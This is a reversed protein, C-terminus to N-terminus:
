TDPLISYYIQNLKRNLHELERVYRFTNPENLSQVYTKLKNFLDMTLENPTSLMARYVVKDTLLPISLSEIFQALTDKDVDNQHYNALANVITETYELMSIRSKGFIVEKMANTNPGEETPLLIDIFLAPTIETYQFYMLIDQLQDYEMPVNTTLIFYKLRSILRNRCDPNNCRLQGLVESLEGGCSSCIPRAIAPTLELLDPVWTLLNNVLTDSLLKIEPKDRLTASLLDWLIEGNVSENIHYDYISSADLLENAPVEHLCISDIYGFRDVSHSYNKPHIVAVISDNERQM